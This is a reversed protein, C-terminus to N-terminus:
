CHSESLLFSNYEKKVIGSRANEHNAIQLCRSKLARIATVDQRKSWRSIANINCYRMSIKNNKKILEGNKFHPLAKMFSSVTNYDDHYVQGNFYIIIAVGRKLDLLANYIAASAMMDYPVNQIIAKREESWIGKTLSEFKYVTYLDSGKQVYYCFLAVSYDAFRNPQKKVVATEIDIIHQSKLNERICKIVQPMMYKLQKTSFHVVRYGKQSLWEDREKTEKSKGNHFTYGDCEVILRVTKSQIFFDGVYKVESFRGGTYVCYQEEFPIKHQILANKLLNEIYTTSECVIAM